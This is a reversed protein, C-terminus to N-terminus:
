IMAAMRLLSLDGEFKVFQSFVASHDFAKSREWPLGKDRLRNQTERKTLDLGFGVGFLEANRILFTLEGEYHIQEEVNYYIENSISSNPKMFVVLEGPNDNKLEKIHDVYNQGICIIKSPCLSDDGLKIYNM